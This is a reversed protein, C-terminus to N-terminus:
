GRRTRLPSSCVRTFDLPFLPFPLTPFFLIFFRSVRSITVSLIRIRVGCWLMANTINQAIAAQIWAALAPLSMLDPGGLVRVDFDIVPEDLVSFYVGGLVPLDDLLPGLGLRLNVAAQICSVRVTMTPTMDIEPIM